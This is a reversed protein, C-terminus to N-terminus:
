CIRPLQEGALMGLIRRGGSRTRLIVEGRHTNVVRGIVAADRGEKEARIIRLIRGAYKEKVIAAFKGENALYFPDFGLMGCASRVASRVPVLAEDIEMGANSSVCIENLTTALGGRTPDRLCRVAEPLCLIKQVIKNLPQCDSKIKASLDFGARGSLVAIEHDGMFGSLIVSDGPGANSGSVDVGKKVTGIGSTNTFIKDVKGKPVVKLDGTVVKVGAEAATKAASLSIRELDSVPFGEEIILALTIFLPRAGCMSLDNVTGCVSLRGIDGGRFFVPDVVYSDTSCAIREGSSMRIVAGDDLRNLAPNGFAKVFMEKILNHMLKGGAGHGLLIREM